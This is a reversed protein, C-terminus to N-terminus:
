SLEKKLANDLAAAMELATPFRNEPNKQMAKAIIKKASPPLEPRLTDVSVFKCQLIQTTLAAINDAKFPFEGTLLQYFMVGLSFIDSQGSVKEGRIQEPSMYLPSGLVEGTRTQAMTSDLIRAVGFDAVKIEDNKHDYLINSPKIDRHVIGAAHAYALADAVCAVIWYVRDVPLLNNKNTYAALSSGEVYDMAIYAIDQEEKVAYMSVIHPHRLNGAARAEAFFRDKLTALENADFQNYHLTKIAVKRQMLPDFGLYVIGMAGRGLEGLIEYAGLKKITTPQVLSKENKQGRPFFNRVPHELQRTERITAADMMITSAVDEDMDGWEEMSPEHQQPSVSKRVHRDIGGVRQRSLLRKLSFFNALSGVQIFEDNVTRLLMLAYATVCYILWEGLPIWQSHVMILIQQMVIVSVTIVCFFLFGMQLSLYPVFLVLMAALVVIGLYLWGYFDPVYAYYNQELSILGNLLKDAHVDDKVGIVINKENVYRKINHKLLETIAIREIGFRNHDLSIVRPYIVGQASTKISREQDLKIGMDPAFDVQQVGQQRMFADLLVDHKFDNGSKWLLPQSLYNVAELFGSKNVNLETAPVIPYADVLLGYWGNSYNPVTLANYMPRSIDQRAVAVVYKLNVKASDLVNWGAIIAKLKENTISDNISLRVSADSTILAEASTRSPFSSPLVLVVSRVFSRNIEDLVSVIDKVSTPDRSFQQMQEQSIDVRLYHSGDIKIRQLASSFHFLQQNIYAPFGTQLQSHTLLYLASIVVLFRVDLLKAPYRLFHLPSRSSVVM